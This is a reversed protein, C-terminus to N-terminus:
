LLHTFIRCSGYLVTVQQLAGVEIWLLPKQTMHTQILELELEGAAAPNKPNSRAARCNLSLKKSPRGLDLTTSVFLHAFNMLVGTGWRDREFHKFYGGEDEL